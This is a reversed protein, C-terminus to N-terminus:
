YRSTSLNAPIFPKIVITGRKMHEVIARDSLLSKCFEEPEPTTKSDSKLSRVIIKSDEEEQELDSRKIDHNHAKVGSANM